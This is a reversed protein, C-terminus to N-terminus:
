APIHSQLFQRVDLVEQTCASHMMGDYEKFTIPLGLDGLIEHSMRGLSIPLVTDCDGHAQFIPIDKQVITKQVLARLPLYTSMAVIGALRKQYTLGTYLALAGGQSFGGLVIRNAPIGADIEADILRKVSESAAIVGAEDERSHDELDYLDYWSPMRFGGNLTVPAIPAHPCIFKIHPLSLEKCFPAWGRGTDGLGHLIVVTATHTSTAPVTISRLLSTM